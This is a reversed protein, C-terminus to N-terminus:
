NKEVVVITLEFVKLAEKDSDYKNGYEMYLKSEGVEMGKFRFLTIGPSGISGDGLMYNPKGIMHLFYKDYTTKRWDNGTSANSPLHVKLIQDIMLHITKGSDEYKVVKEECGYIVPILAILLLILYKKMPFLIIHTKFGFKYDVFKCYKLKIKFYIYKFYLM